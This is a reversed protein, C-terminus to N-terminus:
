QWRVSRSIFIKVLNWWSFTLPSWYTTVPISHVNNNKSLLYRPYRSVKKRHLFSLHTCQAFKSPSQSAYAVSSVATPCRDCENSQKDFRALTSTYENQWHAEDRNLVWCCGEWCLRHSSPSLAHEQRSGRNKLAELKGETHGDTYIQSKPKARMASGVWSWLPVRVSYTAVLHYLAGSIM